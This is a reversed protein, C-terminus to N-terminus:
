RAVILATSSRQGGAELRVLYQGPPLSATEIRLSGAGAARVGLHAQQVRRGLMDFVELRTEAADSLTYSVHASTAAPNPYPASLHVTSPLDTVADLHTGVGSEVLDLNPFDGGLVSAVTPEPLGFWQRMVSGYVSRFDTQYSLNGNSLNDLDPLSGHFGAKVAPGFLFLPAATGHDTGGSGNEGVRRGFESFSMVLTRDAWGDASLDALFASVAESIYRMLVAHTNAQNAHTDFGGLSVHYIRSGLGGRILRAVASLQDALPNPTIYEVTNSGAASADQIAGAFQFSDNAVSRLFGMETGLRSAPLNDTRYLQATEAIRDFLEMSQVSMGMQAAPGSFMLPAGGGLQVALPFDTPTEAYEPFEADLYRGAWGTAQVGSSGDGATMWIDTSRFHSLDAEPYGVSHVVGMTGDAYLDALQTLQPHFGVSDTVQIADRLGLNPRANFYLDNRYPVITNLGDNGGSLQLIVLVRDTDVAALRSLMGTQAFARVPVGGLAMGGLAATLGVSGLFDRRSWAHHDESHAHGDELRSGHRPGHHHHTCM